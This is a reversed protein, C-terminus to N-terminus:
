PGTVSEVVHVHCADRGASVLWDALFGHMARHLPQNEPRAADWVIGPMTNLEYIWIKGSRGLGIDLSYFRPGFGRLRADVQAAFDALRRPLQEIRLPVERGGQSCNSVYSGSAPLRVFALVIEGDRLILRLDHRGYIGLEPWGNETELFAQLVYDPLGWAGHSMLDRLNGICIDRGREGYRPKLVFREMSLDPHLAKRRLEEFPEASSALWTPPVNGPFAEGTAWKDTLLDSLQLPNVIQLNQVELARRCADASPLQPPLDAYCLCFEALKMEAPHWLGGQWCWAFVNSEGQLHDFHSVHLDLGREACLTALHGYSVNEDDGVFPLPGRSSLVLTAILLVKRGVGPLDLPLTQM